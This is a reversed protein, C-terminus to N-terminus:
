TTRLTPPEHLYAKVGAMFEELTRCVIYKNGAEEAAAQWARQADSQGSGKDTTKMEICLAYYGARGTLLILDSVGATVGERKMQLAEPSYTYVHGNRVVTRKTRKGGNPVAFFIRSLEPYQYNFWEVCAEQLRGERHQQPKRQRNQQEQAKKWIDAYSM